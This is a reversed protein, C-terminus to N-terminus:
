WITNEQRLLVADVAQGSNKNYLRVLAEFIIQHEIRFFDESKLKDAVAALAEDDIMMSGLVAAEAALSELPQESTQM